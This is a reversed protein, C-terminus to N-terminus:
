LCFLNILSSSNPSSHSHGSAGGIPISLCLITSRRLCGTGLGSACTNEFAVTICGFVSPNHVPIPRPLHLWSRSISVAPSAGLFLENLHTLARDYRLPEHESSSGGRSILLSSSSPLVVGRHSEVAHLSAARLPPPHKAACNCSSFSCNKSVSFNHVFLFRISPENSLEGGSPNLCRIPVALLGIFNLCLSSLHFCSISFTM